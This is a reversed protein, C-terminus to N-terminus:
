DPFIIAGCSPATLEGDTPICDLNDQGIDIAFVVDNYDAAEGGNAEDEWAMVLYGEYEYAILHQMGDINLSDNIHWTDGDDRKAGDVILKFDLVSGSDLNGLSVYDGLQLAKDSSVQPYGFTEWLSYWCGTAECAIEDFVMGDINTSGASIVQLQNHYMGKEKIFYVKVEQTTKLTLHGLDLKRANIANLDLAQAEQNVFQQFADVGSQGNAYTTQHFETPNNNARHFNFDTGPLALAPSTTFLSAAILSLSKGFKPMTSLLLCM